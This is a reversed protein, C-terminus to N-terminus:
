RGDGVTETKGRNARVIHDATEESSVTAPTSTGFYTKGDDAHNVCTFEAHCGGCYNATCLHDDQVSVTACPSTLCKAEHKGAICYKDDDMACCSTFKTNDFHSEVTVTVWNSGKQVCVGSCTVGCCNTFHGVCCTSNGTCAICTVEGNCGGNVNTWTNSSCDYCCLNKDGTEENEFSGGCYLKTGRKALTRVRAGKKARWRKLKSWKRTKKEYRALARVTVNAGCSTFSGGCYIHAGCPHVSWVVGNCGGGLARWKRTKMNFAAINKAEINGARNFDGGVILEDGDKVIVRVKGRKSGKKLGGSANCCSWKNTTRNWCAFSNCNPKTGATGFYGGVYCTDGVNCITYIPGDTGKRGSDSQAVPALTGVALALLPIWLRSM